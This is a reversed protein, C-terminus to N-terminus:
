FLSASITMVVSGSGYWSWLIMCYNQQGERAARRALGVIFPSKDTIYIITPNSRTLSDIRREPTRPLFSCDPTSPRQTSFLPGRRVILPSVIPIFFACVCAPSWIHRLYFMLVLTLHALPSFDPVMRERRPGSPKGNNPPGTVIAGLGGRGVRWVSLGAADLCVLVVAFGHTFTVLFACVPAPVTKFRSMVAAHVWRSYLRGRTWSWPARVLEAEGALREGEEGSLGEAHKILPGDTLGDTRLLKTFSRRSLSLLLFSWLNSSCFISPTREEKRGEERRAGKKEDRLGHTAKIERKGGEGKKREKERLRERVACLRCHRCTEWTLGSLHAHLGPWTFDFCREPIVPTHSLTHASPPFFVCLIRIVCETSLPPDCLCCLYENSFCSVPALACARWFYRHCCARTLGWYVQQVPKGRRGWETGGGGRWEAKLHPSSRLHCSLFLCIQPALSHTLLPYLATACCM